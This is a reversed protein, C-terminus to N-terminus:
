DDYMIVGLEDAIGGEKECAKGSEPERSAITLRNMHGQDGNVVHHKLMSRTGGCPDEFKEGESTHQTM